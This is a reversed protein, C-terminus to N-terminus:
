TATTYYFMGYIPRGNTWNGHDIYRNPATSTTGIERTPLVWYVGSTTGYHVGGVIDGQGATPSGHDVWYEGGHFAESISFPLTSAYFRLTGTKSGSETRTINYWCYVVRGIKVYRTVSSNVSITYNAGNGDLVQPTWTGEEYDDFKNGDTSISRSGDPVNSFDIGSGNAFELNGSIIQIHGYNTIRLKDSTGVRFQIHGGTAAALDAYNGSSHNVGHLTLVAGNSVSNTSGGFLRLRSTDAGTHIISDANNFRIDGGSEIRLRETTSGGGPRTHLSIAGANTSNNETYLKIWSTGNGGADVGEIVAGSIATNNLTKLSLYVAETAGDGEITVGATGNSRTFRALHFSSDSVHLKATPNTVNVGVHGTEMDIVMRKQVGTELSRDSTTMSGFTIQNDYSSGANYGVIWPSEYGSAYRMAYGGLANGGQFKRKALLGYMGGGHHYGATIDGSVQLKGETVNQTNISVNGDKSIRMREEPPTGQASRTGFVLEGYNNTQDTNYGIISSTSQGGADCFNIQNNATASTNNNHLSLRAGMTDNGEFKVNTEGSSKEVHFITDSHVTPNDGITVSGASTIRARETPSSSGDASTKLVIASPMDTSSNVSGDVEAEIIAGINYANGNTNYGRFDIRGLSDNDAVITNSGITANKSRYFTLRGGNAATSSYANVDIADSGSTSVQLKGSHLANTHNVCIVGNSDIRFKESTGVRVRFVNALSGHSAGYLNINAGTNSATDGSVIFSSDSVNRRLTGNYSIIEGTSDIRLRETGSTTVHILNTGFYLGTDNDPAALSPAAATGNTTIFGNNGHISVAM